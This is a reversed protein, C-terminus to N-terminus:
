ERTHCGVCLVPAIRKGKERNYDRHCGVCNGHMANAHYDLLEKESLGQAERGRLEGPKSHCDICKEVPDDAKLDTLPVGKDDHHCEGCGIQYDDIHKQHTFTVKARSKEYPAELVMVEPMGAAYLVAAVILSLGLVIMTSLSKKKM